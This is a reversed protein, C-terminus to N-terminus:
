EKQLRNWGLILKDFIRQVRKLSDNQMVFYPTM